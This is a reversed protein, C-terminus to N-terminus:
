MCSSCSTSSSSSSSCAVVVVVVVVVVILQDKREKHLVVERGYFYEQYFPPARSPTNPDIQHLKKKEEKEPKSCFFVLPERIRQHIARPGNKKKYPPAGFLPERIRQHIAWPGHGSPWKRKQLANRPGSATAMPAITEVIGAWGGLGCKCKASCRQPLLSRDHCNLHASSDGSHVCRFGLVNVSWPILEIRFPPCSRSSCQSVSPFLKPCQVLLVEFVFRLRGSRYM